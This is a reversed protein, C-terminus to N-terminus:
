QNSQRMKEIFFQHSRILPSLEEGKSIIELLIAIVINLNNLYSM